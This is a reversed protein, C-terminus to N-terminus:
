NLSIKGKAVPLAFFDEMYPFIHLKNPRGANLLRLYHFAKPKGWHALPLLKHYKGRDMLASPSTLSLVPFAMEEFNNGRKSFNCFLM